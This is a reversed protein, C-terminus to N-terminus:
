KLYWVLMVWKQKTGLQKKKEILKKTTEKKKKKTAEVKQYMKKQRNTMLMKGLEEQEKKLDRKIKENKAAKDAKTLIQKQIKTKKAKTVKEDESSPDLDSDGEEESSSDLDGKAVASSDVVEDKKESGENGDNEDSDSSMEEVNVATEIGALSNIERQRDPIYGAEANDIFPSLHAPAPVGPIYPKTPLLFLNNVSDLIYQPQIYEKGKETSKIPRDM